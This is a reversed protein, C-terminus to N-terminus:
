RLTRAVRFGFDIFGIGSYNWLRYASRLNEPRFYWSGGRLVRRSCNGSTWASGDSPAGQYSDNWCDEVWEWVNGNMDYLGWPNAPYSGVESTKGVNNGFNAQERTPPNDGWAYRTTTGARAAYEWEAESLLQYHQDTTNRLWDVFAKADDWSVCTVPDNDTQEFGPALWNRSTDNKWQGDKLGWCGGAMDHGTAHVFTKFQGITVEYQGVAFPQAIQVFHQPKEGDVWEQKTGQEVAWKREAETSGMTFSGAPLAVMLPCDDCDRFPEKATTAMPASKPTAEPSKKEILATPPPESKGKGDSIKELFWPSLAAAVTAIATIIAALITPHRISMWQAKPKRRSAHEAGAEEKETIVMREAAEPAVRERTDKVRPKALPIAAERAQRPNVLGELAREIAKVLRDFGGEQWLDV